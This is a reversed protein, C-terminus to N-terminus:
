IIKAYQGFEFLLGPFGVTTYNIGIRTGAGLVELQLSNQIAHEKSYFIYWLYFGYRGVCFHANPL